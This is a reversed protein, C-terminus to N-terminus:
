LLTFLPSPPFSPFGQFSCFFMRLNLKNDSDTLVSAAICDPREGGDLRRQLDQLLQMIMDSRKKSAAQGIRAMRRFRPSLRLAPVFDSWTNSAGRVTTIRVANEIYARLWPDHADDFRRGFTIQFGLNMAVIQMMELPYVSVRGYLGEEAL